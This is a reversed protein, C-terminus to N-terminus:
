TYIVIKFRKGALRYFNVVAKMEDENFTVSVHVNVIFDVEGFLEATTLFFVPPEAEATTFIFDPPQGEATTFLFNPIFDDIVNDIFITQNTPDFKVNLLHELYIVQSTFAVDFLKDDRFALFVDYLDKLPKIFAFIWQLQKPKRKFDPVQLERFREFDLNFM